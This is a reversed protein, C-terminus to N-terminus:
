YRRDQAEGSHGRSQWVQPIAQIWELWSSRLQGRSAGRNRAACGGAVVRYHATVREPYTLIKAIRVPVAVQVPWNLASRQLPLVVGSVEDIRLNPDASIVTRGSFDVRKGNGRSRGQKGKLRQCLGHLPKQDHMQLGNDQQQRIVCGIATLVGLKGLPWGTLSPDRATPL